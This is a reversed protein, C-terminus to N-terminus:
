DNWYMHNQRATVDKLSVRYVNTHVVVHENFEHDNNGSYKRMIALLATKKIEDNTILEAKGNGIISRFKTGWNCAQKNSFVEGGYNVEFCINPNINIMDVKKGKQSGHFYLYDDDYGFNVAVVYPINDNAIGLHCFQGNKLVTQVQLKIQETTYNNKM